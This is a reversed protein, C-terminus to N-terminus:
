FPVSEDDDLAVGAGPKVDWVEYASVSTFEDLLTDPFRSDNRALALRFSQRTRPSRRVEYGGVNWDGPEVLEALEAQIIRQEADLLKDRAALERRATKTSHLSAALTAAERTSVQPLEPPEWDQFCTDIYRCFHGRGDQPKRCVRDPMTGYDRWLVVQGVREAVEDLLGGYVDSDKAVIVRQESFDSPDLIVLAGNEVEGDYAMYGALQVLKSRVMADSAHASSLVEIATRTERLYVDIHGTGLPWKVPREREINGEGHKAALWDAYDRGLRRGRFMIRQERDSHDRAPADLAEYVAKRPCSRVSSWRLPKPIAAATV